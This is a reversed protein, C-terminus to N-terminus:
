SAVPLTFRFTTGENVRSEATITGGHAQVLQQVIGLGLGSGEGHRRNREAQYYRDFVNALTDADMGLGTDSISIEVWTGERRAQVVVLGGEPTHRLANYILNSIMQRLRQPDAMVPPLEESVLNEVSIKRQSWALQSIGSIIETAVGHVSVPQRTLRLNHEELRAVTFLDDTLRVLMDGEHQILQLGSAIEPDADTHRDLLREATGKIIAVPTRLEHSVNSIFARRSQDNRDIHEAMANFSEALRGIEDRRQIRVRTHLYGNAMAEAAGALRQLRRTLSRTRWVGFPIAVILAPIAFIWLSQLFVISIDQFVEGRTAGIDSVLAPGQLMLTGVWAGDNTIIPHAVAIHSGAVNMSYLANWEHDVAGALLRNRTGTSRLPEDPLDELSQRPRLSNSTAAVVTGSPDTILVQVEDTAATYPSLGTFGPVNGEAILELRGSLDFIREASVPQDDMVDAVYEPDIWQVYAAAREGLFPDVQGEGDGFLPTEPQWFVSAMVTIEFLLIVLLVVAVYSAILQVSTRQQFLRVPTSVIYVIRAWLGKSEPEPSSQSM